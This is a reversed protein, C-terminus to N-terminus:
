VETVLLRVVRRADYVDSEEDSGDNDGYGTQNLPDALRKEACSECEGDM